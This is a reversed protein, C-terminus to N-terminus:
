DSFRNNNSASVFLTTDNRSDLTLQNQASIRTETWTIDEGDAHGRGRNYSATPTVSGPALSVGVSSGSSANTSHQESANRSALLNIDNDADLHVNNGEIDSGRITIDAPADIPNNDDALARITVNGDAKVQSGASQNNRQLSQADSESQGLSVNLSIPAAGNSLASHANHLALSGSFVALADLRSDTNTNSAEAMSEVTNAADMVPSSVSVSLGRQEFHTTQESQDTDTAELIDVRQAEININGGAIDGGSTYDSSLWQQENTFHPDTEILGPPFPIFRM